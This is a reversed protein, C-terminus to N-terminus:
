PIDADAILTGYDLFNMVNAFTTFYLGGPKCSGTPNFPLKDKNLGVKYKYDNHTLDSRLVKVYQSPNTKTNENVKSYAM